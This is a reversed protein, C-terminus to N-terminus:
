GLRAKVLKSVESMDARGALRGKLDAMVKGMVSMSAGHEALAADVVAVIEDISFPQPMYEMLVSVETREKDALDARGAADFQDISDKRQKLMKEIISMIAADDLEIREDVEKQKLASLLLRITGLREAERAKMASKMDDQIRAKLNM